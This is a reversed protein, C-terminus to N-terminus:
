VWRGKIEATDKGLVLREDGAVGANSKLMLRCWMRQVGDVVDAKLNMSLRCWARQVGTVM